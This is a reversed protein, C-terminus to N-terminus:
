RKAALLRARAEALLRDDRRELQWDFQDRMVRREKGYAAYQVGYMIGGTLTFMGTIIALPPIVQWPM